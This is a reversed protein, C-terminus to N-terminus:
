GMSPTATVMQGGPTQNKEKKASKAGNNQAAVLKDNTNKSATLQEEMRHLREKMFQLEASDSSNDESKKKERKKEKKEKKLKKKENTDVGSSFQAGIDASIAAATVPKSSQVEPVESVDSVSADDATHKFACKDGNRCGDDSFYFACPKESNPRNDTASYLTYKKKVTKVM